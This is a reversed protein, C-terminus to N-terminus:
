SKSVWIPFTGGHTSQSELCIGVVTGAAPSSGNVLEGDDGSTSSPVVQDGATVGAAGALATAPGDIVVRGVAGEAITDQAIGIALVASTGHLGKIVGFIHSGTGTTDVAVWAGAPIVSSGSNYADIVTAQPAQSDPYSLSEGFAGAANGIQTGPM